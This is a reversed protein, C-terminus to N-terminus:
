LLYIMKVQDIQLYGVHQFLTNEGARGQEGGLLQPMDLFRTATQTQLHNDASKTQGLM